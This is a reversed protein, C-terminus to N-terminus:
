ALGSSNVFSGRRNRWVIEALDNKLEEIHGRHEAALHRKLDDMSGANIHYTPNYNINIGSLGEPSQDKSRELRVKDQRVRDNYLELMRYNPHGPSRFSKDAVRRHARIMAGTNADVLNVYTGLPFAGLQDPSLAMDKYVLRNRGPWGPGGSWGPGWNADINREGFKDGYWGTTIAGRPWLPNWVHPGSSGWGGTAGGRGSAGGGGEFKGQAGTVTAIFRLHRPM